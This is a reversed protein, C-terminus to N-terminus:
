DEFYRLWKGVTFPLIARSHREVASLFLGSCHETVDCTRCEAVLIKKHDSISQRAFGWIQRPLVCFPLNYISVGLGRRHLHEVAARLTKAYDIPDVWLLDSNKKVYGMNELGMFAVQQVFPLRRWIWEALSELRPISQAHLVIRVEAEIGRAALNYFGAVTDAFAGRAQAIHDHIDPVDAHLPVTFRLAPHGITAIADALRPDALGRGNSLATVTTTPLQLKLAALLHLFGEGLLTPEGGTIGLRVPPDDRLLEIMRLCVDLLGDAKAKPPQSCMLCNSNCRETVFLANHPSAKRYLTRIRGSKGDVLVLDGPGLHDLAECVVVQGGLDADHASTNVLVAAFASLDGDPLGRAQIVLVTDAPNAVDADTAIRGVVQNFPRLPRGHVHMVVAM